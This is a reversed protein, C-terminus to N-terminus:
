FCSTPAGEEAIRKWDPGLTERASIANESGPEGDKFMRIYFDQNYSGTPVTPGPRYSTTTTVQGNPQTTRVTEYTGPRQVYRVNNASQEGLVQYRDFGSRITEVAAAKAAVAAAQSSGCEPDVKAKIIAENQATRVTEASACAGLLLSLLLISIKRM